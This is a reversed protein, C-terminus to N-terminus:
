NTQYLSLYEIDSSNLSVVNNEGVFTLIRNTPLIFNKFDTKSVISGDSHSKWNITQLDTVTTYKGSKLVIEATWRM